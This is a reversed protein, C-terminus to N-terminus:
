SLPQVGRVFLLDRRDPERRHSFGLRQVAVVASCSGDNDVRTTLEYNPACFSVFAACRSGLSDNVRAMSLIMSNLGVLGNLLQLQLSTNM